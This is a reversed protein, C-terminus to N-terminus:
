SESLVRFYEKPKHILHLGDIMIATPQKTYETQELVIAMTGKKYYAINGHTDYFSCDRNLMVLDGVKQQGIPKTQVWSGNIKRRGKGRAM